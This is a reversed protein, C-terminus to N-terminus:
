THRHGVHLFCDNHYLICTKDRNSVYKLLKLYRCFYLELRRTKMRDLGHTIMHSGWQDQARFLIHGTNWVLLNVGDSAYNQFGQNEHSGLNESFRHNGFSFWPYPLCNSAYDWSVLNKM